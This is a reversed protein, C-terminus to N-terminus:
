VDSEETRGIYERAFSDLRRARVAERIREMLTFYHHLNHLTALRLGLIERELFLHRLYARSYRACLPCACEPDIPGPDERHVANRINLEGRSTFLTGNRANRTPLVCDFLDIGRRVAELIDRPKGVGMLYRPKDFPLLSATVEVMEQMVEPPEGVSLGGVAYGDLELATLAQASLRRLDSFMSGQVIGFLAPDVKKKALLGREAWATTRLAAELAEERSVPWGRVDDLSMMVDVGLAEQVAVSVEPTFLRTSGDIHSQFVVGEDSIRRLKSLSFVQFGGSDTLISAPWNMFRHLGGLREVLEPGPRLFLHYANALILTFGIDRVEEPTVTKVAGRTGVPMFAPTATEGRATALFGLRAANNSDRDVVEFRFSTGTHKELQEAGPSKATQTRFLVTVYEKVSNWWETM